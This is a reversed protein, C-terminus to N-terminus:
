TEGNEQGGGAVTVKAPRLVDDNLRYGRLVEAIVTGRAPGSDDAPVVGVAEHLRPDFTKGVAEIPRVGMAELQGLIQRHTMRLGDILAKGSGGQADAFALARELNDLVSLVLGLMQRRTREVADQRDRAAQKKFNELDAASHLFHQWNRQATERAERVKGRLGEASLGALDDQQGAGAEAAPATGERAPGGPTSEAEPYGGGKTHETTM